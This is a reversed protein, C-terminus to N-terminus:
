HCTKLRFIHSFMRKEFLFVARGGNVTSTLRENGGQNEIMKLCFSGIWQKAPPHKNQEPPKKLMGPLELFGGTCVRWVIFEDQNECAILKLVTLSM